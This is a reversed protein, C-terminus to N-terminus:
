SKNPSITIFNGYLYKNLQFRTPIRFTFKHPIKFMLLLLEMIPYPARLIKLIEFISLERIVTELQFIFIKSINM